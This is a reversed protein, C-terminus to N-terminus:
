RAMSQGYYKKYEEPNQRFYEAWEQSYDVEGGQVQQQQQGYYPQVMHPPAHYYYENGLGSGVAPGSSAILGAGNAGEVVAGGVSGRTSMAMDPYSGNRRLTANGVSGAGTPTPTSNGGGFRNIIQMDTLERKERAQRAKLWLVFAVVLLLFVAAAVGGLIPGLNSSSSGGNTSPDATATATSQGGGTVASQAPGLSGPCTVLKWSAGRIVGANQANSVSGLLVGMAPLSIAMSGHDPTTDCSPCTDIIEAIVSRGACVTSLFGAVVGMAGSKSSTPAATGSGASGSGATGTATPSAAAGSSGPADAGSGPINPNNYPLDITCILQSQLIDFLRLQNISFFSYAAGATTILNFTADLGNSQAVFGSVMKVANQNSEVQGNVLGVVGGYWESQYANLFTFNKITFTCGDVFLFTGSCHLPNASNLVQSSSVQVLPETTVGPHFLPPYSTKSCLNVAPADVAAAISAFTALLALAFQM